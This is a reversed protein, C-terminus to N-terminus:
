MYIGGNLHIVQGTLYSSDNSTLFQLFKVVEEIEGFRGMPIKALTSNQIENPLRLNMGEKFYGLALCNVTIDRNAVEKAVAKTLGFLGSKAASYNSTGFVGIQGVVSSINVIRGWRKNRMENVVARICNFSGKLITDVVNDWINDEMKWIVNDQYVAANNILIDVNGYQENIEDVMRNVQNSSRVDSQYISIETGYLNQLHSKFEIIKDRSNNSVYNIMVKAGLRAYNEAYHAGLGQSSGTILVVREKFEGENLNNMILNIKYVCIFNTTFKNGQKKTVM